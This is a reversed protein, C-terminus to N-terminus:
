WGKCIPADPRRCATPHLEAPGEAARLHDGRLHHGAPGAPRRCKRNRPDRRDLRDADRQQRLHARRAPQDHLRGVGGHRGMVTVLPKAAAVRVLADHLSEGGAVSGGPSDVALLVAAVTNDKALANVAEVLKRNDTIVGSVTM